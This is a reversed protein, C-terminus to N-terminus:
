RYFLGGPQFANPIYFIEQQWIEIVDFRIPKNLARNQMLFFTAAQTIKQQKAKTVALLGNGPVGTKRTKVEIFVITNGDMMILDIEGRRTRYRRELCIMGKESCLFQEAAAEGDLGTEYTQKM